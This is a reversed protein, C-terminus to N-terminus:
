QENSEQEMIMIHEIPESTNGARDRGFYKFLYEGFNTNDSRTTIGASWTGDGALSDPAIGTDNFIYNTEDSYWVMTPDRIEYYVIEIDGQGQLDDVDVFMKYNNVSEPELPVEVTDPASLNMLEPATNEMWVNYSVSDASIGFRDWAHMEFQYSGTPHSAAFSADVELQWFGNGIDSFQVQKVIINELILYLEVKQIIDGGSFDPDRVEAKWIQPELGSNLSDPFDTTDSYLDSELSYIVPPSNMTVFITDTQTLPLIDENTSDIEVNYTVVFTDSGSAFFSNLQSTYIFDGPILDGSTAGIFERNLSDDSLDYSSGDDYLDFAAVIDSPEHGPLYLKASVVPRQQIGQLIDEQIGDPIVLSLSLLRFSANEFVWFEPTLASEIEIDQPSPNTPEPDNGLKECSNIIMLIM